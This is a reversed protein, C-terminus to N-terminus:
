VIDSLVRDLIVLARDIEDIEINLPPMFRLANPKVRNVLLGNELCATLMEGGADRGFEMVVLL